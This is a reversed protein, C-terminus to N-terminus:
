LRQRIRDFEEQDIEGRALRQKLINLAEQNRDSRVLSILLRAGQYLLFLLIAWFLFNGLLGFPGHFGTLWSGHQYGHHFFM